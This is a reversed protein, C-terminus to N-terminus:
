DESEGARDSKHHQANNPGKKLEAIALQFKANEWSDLKKPETSLYEGDEKSDWRFSLISAPYWTEKDHTWRFFTLRCDDDIEFTYQEYIPNSLGGGFHPPSNYLYSFVFGEDPKITTSSSKSKLEYKEILKELSFNENIYRSAEILASLQPANKREELSPASKWFGERPLIRFDGLCPTMLFLSCVVFFSHIKLM